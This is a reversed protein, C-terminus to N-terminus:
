IYGINFSLEGPTASQLLESEEPSPSTGGDTVLVLYFSPTAKGIM